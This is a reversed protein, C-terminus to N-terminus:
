SVRESVLCEILSRALQEASLETDRELRARARAVAEPRVWPAALLREM